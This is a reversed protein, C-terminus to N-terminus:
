KVDTELKYKKNLNHYLYLIVISLTIGTVDALFDLTEPNRVSGFLGSDLYGVFGQHIEDSLAFLTGFVFTLFYSPATKKNRAIYFYRFSLIGLIFYELTHMIKDNLIM